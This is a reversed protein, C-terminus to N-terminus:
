VSYLSVPRGFEASQGRRGLFDKVDIPVDPDLGSKDRKGKPDLDAMLGLVLVRGELEERSHRPHLLAGRPACCVKSGAM